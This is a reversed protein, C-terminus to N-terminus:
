SAAKPDTYRAIAAAIRELAESASIDKRQLIWDVEGIAVEALRLKDKTNM